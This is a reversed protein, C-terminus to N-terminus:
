AFLWSAVGARRALEAMDSDIQALVAPTLHAPLWPAGGKQQRYPQLLAEWLAADLARAPLILPPARRLGQQAAMWAHSAQWVELPAPLNHRTKLQLIDLVGAERQHQGIELTALRQGNRRRVSWLRSRDRAIRDAYQDACNHMAQAEELLQEATLLPLFTLGKHEGPELWGDAIVGSRLQLSLRIRNLWSKAACLATEFSIEPRWPVMILSTAPKHANASYWAYASLVAFMRKPEGDGAFLQQQALWIAFDEHVAEAAFAVSQLWLASETRTGPLCNVIRRTFTESAPLQPLEGAFAEAPLKRLWMPLGLSHAVEKLLAGGLVLEMVHRRREPEMEPGAIMHLAGPFIQALDIMRPSLRMLRRVERRQDPAFRRAISEVDGAPISGDGLREVDRRGLLTRMSM